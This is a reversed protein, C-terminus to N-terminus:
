ISEELFINKERMIFDFIKKKLLYVETKYGKCDLVRIKGAEVDFFKFDPTYTIPRIKKGNLHRYSPQLTFTPQLQLDLIKGSRELECLQQYMKKEAKSDFCIGDATRDEVRSSVNYKSRTM